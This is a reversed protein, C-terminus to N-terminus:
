RVARHRASSARRLARAERLIAARNELPLIPGYAAFASRTQRLASSPVKSSALVHTTQSQLTDDVAGSFPDVLVENLTQILCLTGYGPAVWEQQVQTASYYGLPDTLKYTMDVEDGSSPMGSPLSCAAPLPQTGSEDIKTSTYTASPGDPYWMPLMSPSPSPAPQGPVTATTTYPIVYSGNQLVPAGVTTVQQYSSQSDTTTLTGVLNMSLDEIYEQTDGYATTKNDDHYAGAATLSESDTYSYTDGSSTQAYSDTFVFPGTETFSAGAVNPFIEVVYAPQETASAASQVTYGTGAYSGSDVYGVEGLQVGGNAQQLVDYSDYEDTYTSYTRGTGTPASQVRKTEYLGSQGNFTQNAAITDTETWTEATPAASSQSDSSTATVNYTATAGDVLATDIIPSASPAPTPGAATAAIAYVAFSAPLNATLTFAHQVPAFTLTTGSQTAPGAFGDQWGLSPNLPDLYAVYFQAGTPLAGSPYTLTLSPTASFTLTASSVIQIYGEVQSGFLSATRRTGQPARAPSFPTISSPIANTFTEALSVSAGIGAAPATFGLQGTVPAGTPLAVPIATSAGAATAPLTSSSTVSFTSVPTSPPGYTPQAVPPM